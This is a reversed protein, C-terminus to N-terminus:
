KSKSIYDLGAKSVSYVMEGKNNISVEVMGYESLRSLMQSTHEMNAAEFIDSMESDYLLYTDRKFNEHDHWAKKIASLMYEFLIKKFDKDKIDKIEKKIDSFYYDYSKHTM